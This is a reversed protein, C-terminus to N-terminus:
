LKKRIGWGLEKHRQRHCKRCLYMVVLPKNYDDHHKEANPANCRECTSDKPATLKGWRVARKTISWVPNWASPPM